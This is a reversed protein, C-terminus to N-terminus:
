ATKGEDVKDEAENFLTESKTHKDHRASGKSLPNNGLTNHAMKGSAAQAPMQDGVGTIVEMNAGQDRPNRPMDTANDAAAATDPQGLGDAADETAQGPRPVSPITRQTRPESGQPISTGDVAMDTISGGQPTSDQNSSM